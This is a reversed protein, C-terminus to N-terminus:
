FLGHSVYLPFLADGVVCLAEQGLHAVHVQLKRVLVKLRDKHAQVVYVHALQVELLEQLSNASGQRWVAHQEHVEGELLETRACM